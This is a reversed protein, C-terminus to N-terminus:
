FLRKNKAINQLFDRLDQSPKLWILILCYVLLVVMSRVIADAFPNFLYPLLYGALAAGAGAVLVLWTKRTFPHLRMKLYLFLMKAINFVALSFTTVWAAGYIGYQPIFIRDLIFVMVLLFASIRFNFKYYKSISILENNLGTAMDILKGLMLIWVLYQVPAYEPPLIAVANHLNLGVLLVMGIAAIFINIGARSFLSNIKQKDKKIYAENLIPMSANAMARFPMYSVGAIFVAVAYIASAEIGDKDLPGLLITDIFGLMTMSVGMLLHYWSFRLMDLYEAKNFVGLSLTFGFGKTRSVVISLVVLPVFYIAVYSIVYQHFSIVGTFILGLLILNLSRLVIEKTFAPIAIKVQSILYQELITTIGWILVLIPLLFYYKEILVQDDANYLQVISQKLLFYVITFVVTGSIATLLALTLLAKRRIDTDSYRQTYVLVLNAAGLIVLLQLIAASMTVSTVLGYRTAPVLAQSSFYVVLAGLVAGTLTIITAKVSQRFVIGM